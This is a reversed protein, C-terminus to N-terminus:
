RAASHAGVPQVNRIERGIQSGTVRKVPLVFRTVPDWIVFFTYGPAQHRAAHPVRYLTKPTPHPPREEGCALFFNM